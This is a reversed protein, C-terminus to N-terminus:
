LTVQISSSISIAIDNQDVAFVSVSYVGGPLGAIILFATANAGAAPTIAAPTILVIQGLPNHVVAYVLGLATNSGAANLYNAMICPLGNLTSQRPSGLLTYTTTLIPAGSSAFAGLPSLLASAVLLAGMFLAFRNM